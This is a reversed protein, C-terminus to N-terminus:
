EDSNTDMGYIQCLTAVKQPHTELFVRAKTIKLDGNDDIKLNYLTNMKIELLVKGTSRQIARATLLAGVENQKEDIFLHELTLKDQIDTHSLCAEYWQERSTVMDDFSLEPAYFKDMIGHTEAVQGEESYAKVYENMFRVIEDYRSEM